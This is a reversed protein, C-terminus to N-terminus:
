AQAGGSLGLDARNKERGKARRGQQMRKVMKNSREGDVEAGAEAGVETEADGGAEGLLGNAPRGKRQIRSALMEASSPADVKPWNTLAPYLSLASLVFPEIPTETLPLPALPQVEFACASANFVLRQLAPPPATSDRPQFESRTDLTAWLTCDETSTSQRCLDLIPAPLTTARVQDSLDRPESAPALVASLPVHFFATSGEVTILLWAKGTSDDFQRVATIAKTPATETNYEYVNPEKDTEAEPQAAEATASGDQGEVKKRKNAPRNKKGGPNYGLNERRKEERERAVVHPAIAAEISNVALCAKSSPTTASAPSADSDAEPLSWVRLAKGGDSSILKYRGNGGNGADDATRDEVICLSGVFSTSGLLFREIIHAARRPGWRSIRIHEDRDSTILFRPQSSKSPQPTFAIDTIMSVHGLLIRMSPDTPRDMDDHAEDDKAGSTEAPPPAASQAATTSPSVQFSRLDGFKDVVVLEEADQGDAPQLWQLIAARKPLAKILVEKGQALGAFPSAADDAQVRFVRLIKDDGTLALYRDSRSFAAIRPFAIPPSPASTLADSHDPKKPQPVVVSAPLTTHISPHSPSVLHIANASLLALLDSTHASAVFHFPVTTAM